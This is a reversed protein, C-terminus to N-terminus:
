SAWASMLINTFEYKGQKGCFKIGGQALSGAQRVPWLLLHSLLAVPCPRQHCDEAKPRSKTTTFAVFIVIAVVIVAVFVNM